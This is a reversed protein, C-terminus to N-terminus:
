KNSLYKPDLMNVGWIPFTLSVVIHVSSFHKNGWTRRHYAVTCCFYEQIHAVRWSLVNVDLESSIIIYPHIEVIIGYINLDLFIEIFYIWLRPEDTFKNRRTSYFKWGLIFSLSRERSNVNEKEYDGDWSTWEWSWAGIFTEQTDKLRPINTKLVTVGPLKIKKRKNHFLVIIM